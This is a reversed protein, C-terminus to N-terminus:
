PNCSRVETSAAAAVYFTRFLSSPKSVRGVPPQMPPQSASASCVDKFSPFTGQVFVADSGM